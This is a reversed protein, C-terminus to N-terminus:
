RHRRGRGPQMPRRQVPRPAAQPPPKRHSSGQQVAVPVAYQMRHRDAASTPYQTMRAPASRDRRVAKRKNPSSLFRHDLITSQQQRERGPAARRHFPTIQYGEAVTGQYARVRTIQARPIGVTGGNALDLFVWAGKEVVDIAVLSGGTKLLIEQKPGAWVPGQSLAGAMLLAPIWPWPRNM